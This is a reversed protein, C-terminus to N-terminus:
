QIGPRLAPLHKGYRGFLECSYNITVDAATHNLANLWVGQVVRSAINFCQMLSQFTHYLARAMLIGPHRSKIMCHLLYPFFSFFDFHKQM